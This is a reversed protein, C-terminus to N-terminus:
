IGCMSPLQGVCMKISHSNMVKELVHSRLVLLVGFPVGSLRLLCSEGGEDIADCSGRGVWWINM